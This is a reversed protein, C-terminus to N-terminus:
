IYNNKLGQLKNYTQCFQNFPQNYCVISCMKYVSLHKPVYTYIVRM